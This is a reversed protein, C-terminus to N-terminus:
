RSSGTMQIGRMNNLVMVLYDTLTNCNNERLSYPFLDIVLNLKALEVDSLDAVDIPLNDFKYFEFIESLIQAGINKKSRKADAVKFYDFLDDFGRIYDQMVDLSIIYDYKMQELINSRMLSLEEISTEM